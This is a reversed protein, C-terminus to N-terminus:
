KKAGKSFLISHWQQSKKKEFEFTTLFSFANSVHLCVPKIKEDTNESRVLLLVTWLMRETLVCGFIKTPSVRLVEDGGKSELSNKQTHINCWMLDIYYLRCYPYKPLQKM